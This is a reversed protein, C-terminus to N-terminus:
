ASARKTLGDYVARAKAILTGAESGAGPAGGETGPNPIQTASMVADLSGRKGNLRKASDLASMAASASMNTDMAFTGAMEPMGVKIGHAFISCCRLREASRAAKAAKSAGDKKKDDDDEDEDDSGSDAAAEDDKKKEDDDGEARAAEDEDGEARASEDDDKKKDEDDDGEAAPKGASFGLMHIFNRAKSM